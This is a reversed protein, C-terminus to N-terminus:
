YEILSDEEDEDFTDLEKEDEILRPNIKLLEECNPCEIFYGKDLDSYFPEELIEEGCKPCTLEVIKM